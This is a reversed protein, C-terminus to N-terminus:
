GTAMLYYKEMNKYDEQKEYCAGLKVIAKVNNHEIAMLYYKIANEYNKEKEYHCGLNYM